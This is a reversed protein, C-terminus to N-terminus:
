EISDGISGKLVCDPYFRCLKESSPIECNRSVFGTCIETEGGKRGVSEQQCYRDLFFESRFCRYVVQPVFSQVQKM